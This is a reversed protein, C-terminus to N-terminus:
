EPVPPSFASVEFYKCYVCDEVCNGFFHKTYEYSVKDMGSKLEAEIFKDLEDHEEKDARYEVIM